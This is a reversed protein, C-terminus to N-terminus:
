RYHERPPIAVDIVKKEDDILLVVLDGKNLNALKKQPLERVDFTKELGGDTRITVKQHSGGSHVITGSVQEHPHKIPSISGEQHGKNTKFTVDAVQNTEDILFIASAGIPIAAVKSRAQSRIPFTQEKGEAKIVVSEHGLVLAQAIEGRIIKHEGGANGSEDTLPHFDVILNQENLTIILEDGEKVHGFSKEKAQKLPFFRPQVEGVDVKIQDAAIAIVTGIVTRQGKALQEGAQKDESAPTGMDALAPTAMLLCSAALGLRGIFLTTSKTSFRLSSRNTLRNM